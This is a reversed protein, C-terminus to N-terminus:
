HWCLHDSTSSALSVSKVFVGLAGGHRLISAKHCWQYWNCAQFNEVFVAPHGALFKGHASVALGHQKPVLAAQAICFGTHRDSPMLSVQEHLYGQDTVLLYLADDFKFLTNFHNNRFLIALQRAKL